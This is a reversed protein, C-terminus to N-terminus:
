CEKNIDRIFLDLAAILPCISITRYSRESSKDKNHGKFLISAYVANVELVSMRNVDEIFVSLLLHFHKLGPEGANIYHLATISNLYRVNPKIRHLIEKAKKESIPPINDGRACIELIHDYDEICNKYTPSKALAERDLSKLHAVSDFFGDPVNKGLYTRDRVTLEQINGADCSKGLKLTRFLSSPNKSM